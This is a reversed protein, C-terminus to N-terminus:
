FSRGFAVVDPVRTNKAMGDVIAEITELEEPCEFVKWSNVYDLGGTKVNKFVEWSPTSGVYKGVQVPTYAGLRYAYKKGIERM